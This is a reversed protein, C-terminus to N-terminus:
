LILAILELQDFCLSQQGPPIDQGGPSADQAHHLPHLLHHDPHHCRRRVLIAWQNWVAVLFALNCIDMIVVNDM